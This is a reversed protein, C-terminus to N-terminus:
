GHKAQCSVCMTAYPLAQLRELPIPRHCHQCRGYSGEAMAQLAAEVQDLHKQEFTHLTNDREQDSYAQAMDMQDPNKSDDSSNGSSIQLQQRLKEREEELMQQITEINLSETM